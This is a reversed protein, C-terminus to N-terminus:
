YQLLFVVLHQRNKVNVKQVENDIDDKTVQEFKFSNLVIEPYTEKIKKISIHDHFFDSNSRQLFISPKLSLKRTISVFHEDM